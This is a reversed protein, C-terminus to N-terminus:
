RGGRELEQDVMKAIVDYPAAGGPVQVGNIFVFPTGNLGLRDGERIDREIREANKGSDLCLAFAAQDLGLRGAKEKLAEAQLSDPEVFLLDHMEWFKGQEDACLSAQAAVLANPHIDLPYQRYVIRLQDGYDEKLRNVTEFFRSCYPCEFDSFETLTVPANRPGYSPSGENDLEVRVPELLVKVEHAEGLEVAMDELIQERARDDLYEEIQGYVDELRRGGFVGINRRYFNIVDEETVEVGGETQLAVFEGPTMGRATAEKELLRDRISREVASEVLGHREQQYEYDMLALRDGVLSDVDALTIPEGDVTAVVTAKGGDQTSCAALLWIGALFPIVRSATTGVLKSKITSRM